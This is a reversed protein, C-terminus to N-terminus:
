AKFMPSTMVSQTSHSLVLSLNGNRLGAMRSISLLLNYHLTMPLPTKICKYNQMLSTYAKMVVVTKGPVYNVDFGYRQLALLFQPIRPPAQFISKKFIQRLPKHDNNVEFHHGYLSDKEYPQIARSAYAVLKWQEDHQQELIAGLGNGSADTTLRTPRSPDYFQLVHSNTVMDKLNNVAELQPKGFDWHVEKKLLERLPATVESYQTLFKCLYNTMGLFRQLDEKCQPVLM